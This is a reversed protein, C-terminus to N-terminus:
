LKDDFINFGLSKFINRKKEVYENFETETIIVNKAIDKCGVLGALTNFHEIVDKSIAWALNKQKKIFVELEDQTMPVGPKLEETIEGTENQKELKSICANSDYISVIANDIAIFARDRQRRLQDNQLFVKARMSDKPIDEYDKMKKIFDWDADNLSKMIKEKDVGKRFGNM